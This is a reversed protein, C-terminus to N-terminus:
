ASEQWLAVGGWIVAASLATAVVGSLAVGFGDRPAAVGALLTLGGGIVGLGGMVFLATGALKNM